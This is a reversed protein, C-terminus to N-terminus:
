QTVTTSSPSTAEQQETRVGSMDFNTEKIPFVYVLYLYFFALSLVLILVGLISSTVEVGQASLKLSTALGDPLPSVPKEGTDTASAKNTQHQRFQELQLTAQKMAIRFQIGSFILGCCVILIAVAFTMRASDYQWIFVNTRYNLDKTYYEWTAKRYKYQALEAELNALLNKQLSDAFQKALKDSKLMGAAQQRAKMREIFASPKTESTDVAQALLAIPLVLLCVSVQLSRRM